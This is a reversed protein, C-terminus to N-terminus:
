EIFVHRAKGYPVKVVSQYVKIHQEAITSWNVQKKVHKKINNQLRQRLNDDNIIKSIKQIYDQKSKAVYGGGSEDILRQFAPLDSTVVPKHFALCQAMIGSQAGAEYPLVILDAASIITDFTHQPFQGRLVEIKDNAPSNNILQFFASQYERYQLGRSKGAIVLITGPCKKAIEPFWKVIKHFGKSPRFYGCLLIIKNNTLKIKQKAESIASLERVGHPIVHIKRSQGFLKVLTDKQSREHVIIAQSESVLIRLIIQEDPPIEPKVTHLTIVVPEGVLRYRLLLEVVQVGKQNGYLGFEHQIHVVDPTIKDSVDFIDSALSHSDLSAIAFVNEGQAGVYSIIFTENHHHKLAENLYSTYTGIGCEIPPYTSVFAIRM